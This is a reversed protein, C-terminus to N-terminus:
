RRAYHNSVATSNLVTNYISVEDISGVFYNIGTQNRGINLRSAQTLSIGAAVAATGVSGGDVYLEMAGSSKTRTFVVHHWTNLTPPTSQLITAQSTCTFIVNCGAGALVKGDSRVSVGFGTANAGVAGTATASGTVVTPDASATVEVIFASDFTAASLCANGLFTGTASTFLTAPAAYTATLVIPTQATWLNNAGAGTRVATLSLVCATDGRVVTVATNDLTAGM